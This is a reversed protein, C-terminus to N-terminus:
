LIDKYINTKYFFIIYYNYFPTTRIVFLVLEKPHKTYNSSM